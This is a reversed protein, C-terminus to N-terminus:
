YDTQIYSKFFTNTLQLKPQAKSLFISINKTFYLDFFNPKATFNDIKKNSLTLYTTIYSMCPVVPAQFAFELFTFFGLFLHNLQAKKTFCNIVISM